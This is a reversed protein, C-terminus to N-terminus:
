CSKQKTEGMRVAMKNKKGPAALRERLREGEDCDAFLLESELTRVGLVDPVEDDVEELSELLPGFVDDRQLVGLRCTLLFPSILRSEPSKM